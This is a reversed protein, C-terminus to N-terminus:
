SAMAAAAPSSPSGVKITEETMVVDPDTTPQDPFNAKWNARREAEAEAAAPAEESDKNGGLFDYSRVREYVSPDGGVPDEKGSVVADVTRPVIEKLNDPTECGRENVFFSLM